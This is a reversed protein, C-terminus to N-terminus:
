IAALGRRSARRLLRQPRYDHQPLETEPLSKANETAYVPIWDLQVEWPRPFGHFCVIRADPPLTGDGDSRTENFGPMWCAAVHAKYSIFQGPYDDQWRAPTLARSLFGQDGSVRHIRMHREPNHTFKQWVERKVDHPIYMVGSAVFQPHYFDNLMMMRKEALLVSIDGTIVTDLDLFFIDEQIDPRFLELKAWWGPWNEKLPITKIGPIHSDSFCVAEAEPPLQSHLWQVHEPTYEGGSRLVTAIVTM